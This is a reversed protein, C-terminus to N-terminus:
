AARASQIRNDNDAKPRGAGARAGGRGPGALAWVQAAADRAIEFAERRCTASITEAAAALRLRGAEALQRKPIPIGSPALEAMEAGRIARDLVNRLPGLLALNRERLMFDAAAEQGWLATRERSVFRGGGRRMNEGGMTRATEHALYKAIAVGVAKPIRGAKIEEVLPMRPSLAPGSEAVPARPVANLPVMIPVPAFNDNAAVPQKKKPPAVFREHPAVYRGPFRRELGHLWTGRPSAKRIEAIRDAIAKFPRAAADLPIRRMIVEGMQVTRRYSTM